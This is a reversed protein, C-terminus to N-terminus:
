NTVTCSILNGLVGRLRYLRQLRQWSLKSGKDRVEADNQWMTMRESNCVALQGRVGSQRFLWMATVLGPPRQHCTAEQDTLVKLTDVDVSPAQDDCFLLLAHPARLSLFM